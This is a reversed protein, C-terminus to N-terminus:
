DTEKALACCDDYECVVRPNVRRALWKPKSNRFGGLMIMEKLRHFRVKGIGSLRVPDPWPLALTLAVFMLTGVMRCGSESRGATAVVVYSIIISPGASANHM